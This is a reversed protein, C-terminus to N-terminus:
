SKHTVQHEFAGFLQPYEPYGAYDIWHINIEENNFLETDIYNKAALGTYYDTAGLQKCLYVLKETRGGKLSFESSKKHNYTHKAMTYM